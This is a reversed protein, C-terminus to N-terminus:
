RSCVPRITLGLRRAPAGNLSYESNKIFFEFATDSGCPTSTWYDGYYGLDGKEVKTGIIQGGSPFFISNHTTNSTLTMGYVGGEEGTKIGGKCADVLEQFEKRTPMRWTGKMRKNAADYELPLTGEVAQHFGYNEETFSSKTSTEGWAFYDGYEKENNAGVNMIGWLVDTGMDVTGTVFSRIDGLQYEGDIKVYAAYYYTGGYRLKDITVFFINTEDKSAAEFQLRNDYPLSAEESLLIGFTAEEPIAMNIYASIKVSTATVESVSGTVVTSDEKEEKDDNKNCGTIVSLSFMVWWILAFFALNKVTKM